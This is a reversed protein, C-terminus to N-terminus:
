IATTAEAPTAPTTERAPGLSMQHLPQNMRYREVADNWCAYSDPNQDVRVCSDISGSNEWRCMGIATTGASVRGHASGALRHSYALGYNYGNNCRFLQICHEVRASVPWCRDAEHPRVDYAVDAPPRPVPVPIEGRLERFFARAIPHFDERCANLSYAMEERCAHVVTTMQGTQTYLIFMSRERWTRPQMCDSMAAFSYVGPPLQVAVCHDTARPRIEQLIQANALRPFLPAVIALACPLYQILRM